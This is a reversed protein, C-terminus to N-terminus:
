EKRPDGGHGHLAVIRAVLDRSAHDKPDGVLVTRGGLSRVTEYEPVQEPTGYDTGKAHVDPRVRRLIGDMTNENWLVVYDTCRFGCLLEVREEEPTVPRGPGKLARASADSNVVVVLVDGAARAAELYRLHGVHLLDFCGNAMVVRRGRAREEALVEDLQTLTLFRGM